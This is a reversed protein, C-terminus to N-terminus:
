DVQVEFLSRSKSTVYSFHKNSSYCFRLIQMLFIKFHNDILFERSKWATPPCNMFIHLFVYLSFLVFAQRWCTCDVAMGPELFSYISDWRIGLSSTELHALDDPGGAKEVHPVDDWEVSLPVNRSEKRCQPLKNSKYENIGSFQNDWILPWHLNALPNKKQM